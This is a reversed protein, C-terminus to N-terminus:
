VFVDSNLYLEDTETWERQAFNSLFVSLHASFAAMCKSM